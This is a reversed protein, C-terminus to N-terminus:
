EQPSGPAPLQKQQAVLEGELVKLDKDMQADARDGIQQWAKAWQAASGFRLVGNTAIGLGNYFAEGQGPEPLEAELFVLLALLFRLRHPHAPDRMWASNRAWDFGQHLKDAIMGPIVRGAVWFGGAVALLAFTGQVINNDM